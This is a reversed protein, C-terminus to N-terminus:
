YPVDAEFAPGREAALFRHSPKFSRRIRSSWIALNGHPGKLVVTIPVLDRQKEAQSAFEQM